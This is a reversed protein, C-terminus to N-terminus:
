GTVKVNPNIRIVEKRKDDPFDTDPIYVTLKV